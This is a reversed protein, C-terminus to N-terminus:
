NRLLEMSAKRDAEITPLQRRALAALPANKMRAAAEFLAVARHLELATQQSWWADFEAGTKRGGEALTQEDDYVLANPV